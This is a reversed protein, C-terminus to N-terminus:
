IQIEGYCYFLPSTPGSRSLYGHFYFRLLRWSASKCVTLSRCQFRERWRGAPWSLRDWFWLQFFSEAGPQPQAGRRGIRGIDLLKRMRKRSDSGCPASPIVSSGGPRWRPVGSRRPAYGLGRMNLMGHREPPFTRLRTFLRTGIAPTGRTKIPRTSFLATATFTLKRHHLCRKTLYIM